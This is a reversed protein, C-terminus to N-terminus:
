DRRPPLLLNNSSAANRQVPIGTRLVLYNCNVTLLFCHRLTVHPTSDLQPTRHPLLPSPHLSPKYKTPPLLIILGSVVVLRIIPGITGVAFVTYGICPTSFNCSYPVFYYKLRPRRDYLVVVAATSRHNKDTTHVQSTHTLALAYTCMLYIHLQNRNKM